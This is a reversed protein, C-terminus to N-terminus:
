SDSLVLTPTVPVSELALRMGAVEGDWVTAVTGVAVSGSGGRSGWWGGGVRGLKDRSGNTFLLDVLRRVRNIGQMWDVVSADSGIGLDEVVVEGCWCVGGLSLTGKEALEPDDAAAM